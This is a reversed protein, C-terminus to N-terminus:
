GKLTDKKVALRAALDDLYDVKEIRACWDRPIADFELRAGSIGGAICAISDSDGITNAGRLVAQVYDGPYKLFCYLALAVAEEGIWGEGLAKLAKEEDDYELCEDVKSIAQNFENSIGTTFALLESIMNEPPIGDLALKVLYAAGISAAVATRHGHTCIGSARAVDKLKEPDHQYLYGIPAVRMASGCGKSDSIGSESWHVGKEMNSVGSLCTNGPARNNEPSNRWKAFEDRISDMISDIDQNDSKVLAEAVAISMQTDDSFLAPSPLDRIGDRFSCITCIM